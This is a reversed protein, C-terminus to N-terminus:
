DLLAEIAEIEDELSLVGDAAEVMPTPLRAVVASVTAHTGIELRYRMQTLLGLVEAIKSEMSSEHARTSARLERLEATLSLVLSTLDPPVPSAAAEEAAAVSKRKKAPALTAGAGRGPATSRLAKKAAAAKVKAGKVKAGKAKAGKAKAGKAKAGKAKAGKAKASAAKKTTVRKKM